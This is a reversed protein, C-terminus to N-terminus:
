GTMQQLENLRAPTVWGWLGSYVLGTRDDTPAVPATRPPPPSSPAVFRGVTVRVGSEEVRLIQLDMQDNVRALEMLLKAKTEDDLGLLSDGLVSLPGRGRADAARSAPLITTRTVDGVGPVRLAEDFGFLVQSAEGLLQRTRQKIADAVARNGEELLSPTVGAQISATVTEFNALFEEFSATVYTPNERGIFRWAGNVQVLTIIAHQHTGGTTGSGWSVIRDYLEALMPAANIDAIMQQAAGLARNAERQEREKSSESKKGLAGLAAGIAAGIVLGVVAGIPGGLVYGAYLGYIAGSLAGQAPSGSAYAQYATLGAGVILGAYGLYQGYTMGSLGTAVPAGMQAAGEAAIAAQAPTYGAAIAAAYAGQTTGAAAFPATNLFGQVGSPLYGSVSSLPPTPIAFSQGAQNTTIQYGAGQLQALETASRGTVNIAGAGAQAVGPGLGPLSLGPVGVTAAVGGLGLGGLVRGLTVRAFTDTLIRLASLGVQKPLEEFTKKWGREIPLFFLDSMAREATSAFRRVADAGTEGFSTFHERMERFGKSMGGFLDTREFEERLKTATEAQARFDALAKKKEDGGAQELELLRQQQVVLLDMSAKEAATWAIRDRAITLRGVDVALDSETERRAQTEGAIARAAEANRAAQIAFVRQGQFRGRILDGEPGVAVGAGFAKALELQEAKQLADLQQALQASAAAEVEPAYTQYGGRFGLGVLRQQEMQIRQLTGGHVKAQMEARERAGEIQLLPALSQELLRKREEPTQRLGLTELLTTTEYSILGAVTGLFGLIGGKAAPGTFTAAMTALETNVGALESRIRGLDASGVAQNFAVQAAISTQLARTYAAFGVALLGVGIVATRLGVDAGRTVKAFDSIAFIMQSMVPNLRGFAQAFEVAGRRTKDLDSFTRELAGSAENRARITLEIDNKTAM